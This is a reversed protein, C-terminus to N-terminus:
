HGESLMHNLSKSLHISRTTLVIAINMTGPIWRIVDLKDAELAIRIGTATKRLRNERAEHLTAIIDFLARSDFLIEHKVDSRPFMTRQSEKLDHGGDEPNSCALIEAGLSSYIVRKQKHSTWSLTHFVPANIHTTNIQM